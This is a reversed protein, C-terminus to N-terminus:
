VNENTIKELKNKRIMILYLEELHDFRHNKIMSGYDSYWYVEGNGWDSREYILERLVYDTYELPSMVDYIVKYKNIKHKM